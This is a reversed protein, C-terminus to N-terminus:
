DLLGQLYQRIRAVVRCRSSYVAGVTTGLEKAVDAAPRNELGHGVFARWTLTQFEPQILELARSVVQHRYHTESFLDDQGIRDDLNALLIADRASQRCHNRWINLAIVRLWSRFSKDRDYEFQPLKVVLVRFVEQVLDAADAEQLGTNRLWSYLLPTYILVFKTWADPRGSTRLEGLLTESTTM